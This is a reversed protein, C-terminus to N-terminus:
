DVKKMMVFDDQLDDGLLFQTLGTIRFGERQYFNVARFNRQWVGLWIADFGNKRAYTEVAAIMQKGIGRGILEPKTYLRAIEIPRVAKGQPKSELDLKAYGVLEDNQFALLFHLSPDNQEALMADESFHNALYNKMDAETNFAAYAHTFAAISLNRLAPLDSILSPRITMM